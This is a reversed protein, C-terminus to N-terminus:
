AVYDLIADMKSHINVRGVPNASHVSYTFGPPFELNGDLVENTIWTIFVITTDDGGLDHDFAIHIPLGHRRVWAIAEASSKALAYGEPAPRVDDIFLKRPVPRFVQPRVIYIAYGFIAGYVLLLIAILLAENLM